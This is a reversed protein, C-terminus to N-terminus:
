TTVISGSTDNRGMAWVIHSIRPTSRRLEESAETIKCGNIAPLMEPTIKEDSGFSPLHPQPITVYTLPGQELKTSPVTVGLTAQKESSSQGRVKGRANRAEQPCSRPAQELTSFPHPTGTSQSNVMVSAPWSKM